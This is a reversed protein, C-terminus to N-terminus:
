SSPTLYEFTIFPTPAKYFGALIQKAEKGAMTKVLQLLFNQKLHIIYATLNGKLHSNQSVKVACM